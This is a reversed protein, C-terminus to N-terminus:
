ARERRAVLVIVLVLALLSIALSVNMFRQPGFWVVFAWGVPILWLWFPM